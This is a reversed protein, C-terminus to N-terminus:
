TTNVRKIRVTQETPQQAQRLLQQSAHAPMSVDDVVFVGLSARRHVRIDSKIKLPIRHLNKLHRAVQYSANTGEEFM